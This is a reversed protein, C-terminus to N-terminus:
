IIEGGRSRWSRAIATPSHLERSKDVQASTDWCGEGGGRRSMRGYTSSFAASERASM